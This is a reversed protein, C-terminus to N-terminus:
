ATGASESNRRSSRRKPASRPPSLKALLDDPSIDSWTEYGSNTMAMLREVALTLEIFGAVSGPVRNERIWGTVTNVGVEMTEALFVQTWGLHNLCAKLQAGTMFAVRRTRKSKVILKKSSKPRSSLPWALGDQDAAFRALSCARNGPNRASTAGLIAAGVDKWPLGTRQRLDYVSRAVALKEAIKSDKSKGVPRFLSSGHLRMHDHAEMLVLNSPTDNNHRRDLHHVDFGDALREKLWEETRDPHNSLWAYHYSELPM